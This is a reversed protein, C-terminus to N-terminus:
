NHATGDDRHAKFQAELSAVEDTLEQVAGRLEVVSAQLEALRADVGGIQDAVGSVAAGRAETETELRSRLEQLAADLEAIREDLAGLPDETPEGAPALSEELDAVRETLQRQSDIARDLEARLTTTEADEGPTSCAAVLVMLVALLSRLLPSPPRRPRSRMALLSVRGRM